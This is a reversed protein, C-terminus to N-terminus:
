LVKGGHRFPRTRNYAMKDIILQGLNIKHLECFDAVRIFLDALEVGVGEPKGGVVEVDSAAMGARYTELEESIESHMLALSEGVTHDLEHWGKAEACGYAERMAARMGEVFNVMELENM